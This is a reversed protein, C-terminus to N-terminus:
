KLYDTVSSRAQWFIESDKAFGLLYDGEVAMQTSYLKIAQVKLDRSMGLDKLDSSVDAAGHGAPQMWTAGSGPWTPV